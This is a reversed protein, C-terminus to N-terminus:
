APSGLLFGVKLTQKVPMKLSLTTESIEVDEMKKLRKNAFGSRLQKIHIGLCSQTAVRM